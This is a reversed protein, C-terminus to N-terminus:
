SAPSPNFTCGVPGTGKLTCVDYGHNVVHRQDFSETGLIGSYSEQGLAAAIKDTDSVTGARKMAQVLMQVGVYNWVGIPLGSAGLTPFEQKMRDFFQKRASSSPYDPSVPGQTAQVVLGGVGNPAAKQIDTMSTYTLSYGKSVANLEMGQQLVGIGVSPLYSTEVVQAGSAKVRTLLPRFDTTGNPFFYPDQPNLGEAKLAPVLLKAIAQGSIDNQVLLAVVTGTGFNVKLAHAEISAKVTLPAQTEFLYKYKGKATDLTLLNDVASANSLQIVSNAQTLQAIPGATIGNTSGIIFKIQQDRIMAQAKSVAVSPDTNTSEEDLQLKYRVGNVVVGGSANIDKVALSTGAAAGVGFAQGVGTVDQLGGLVITGGNQTAPTTGAGCATAFALALVSGLATRVRPSLRTMVTGM